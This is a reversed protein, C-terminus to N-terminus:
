NESPVDAGFGFKTVIIHILCLSGFVFLMRLASDVTRADGTKPDAPDTAALYLNFILSVIIVTCISCTYFYKLRGKVTCALGIFLFFVSLMYGLAPSQSSPANYVTYFAAAFAVIAILRRSGPSLLNRGEGLNEFAMNILGEFLQEQPTARISALTCVADLSALPKLRTPTRHTGREFIM